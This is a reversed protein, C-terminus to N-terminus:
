SSSALRGCRRMGSKVVHQRGPGEGESVQAFVRREHLTVTVGCRGREDGVVAPDDPGLESAVLAALDLGLAVGEIDHEGVGPRRHAARRRDEAGGLGVGAVVRVPRHPDADADVGALRDRVFSLEDARGDDDGRAQGLVRFGALEQHGLDDAREQRAALGQRHGLAGAEDELAEVRRWPHETDLPRGGRGRAPSRGGVIDRDGRRRRRGVLHETRDHDTAIALRGREGTVEGLRDGSVAARNQHGPLGPEPLAREHAPELLPHAFLAGPEEDPFAGLDLGAAREPREDVRERGSVERERRLELLASRSRKRDGLDLAVAHMGREGLPEGIRRALAGDDEDDLVEVPAVLRRELQDGVERALQFIDRDKEDRGIPAVLEMAEM